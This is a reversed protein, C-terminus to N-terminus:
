RQRPDPRRRAAVLITTRDARGDIDGIRELYRAPRIRRDVFEPVGDATVRGAEEYEEPRAERIEITMSRAYGGREASHDVENVM